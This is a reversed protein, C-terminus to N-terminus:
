ALVAEAQLQGYDLRPPDEDCMYNTHMIILNCNVNNPTALIVDCGTLISTVFLMRTYAVFPLFTYSVSRHMDLTLLIAQIPARSLDSMVPIPVPTLILADMKSIEKFSAICQVPAWCHLELTLNGSHREIRRKYRDASQRCGGNYNTNDGLLTFTNSKQKIQAILKNWADNNSNGTILSNADSFSM